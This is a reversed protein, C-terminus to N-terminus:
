QPLDGARTSYYIKNIVKFTSKDYIFGVKNEWTVQYIRDRYLAIGEGFLHLMLIIAAQDGKRDATRSGEPKIRDETRDKLYYGKIM